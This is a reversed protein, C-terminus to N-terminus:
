THSQVVVYNQTFKAATEGEIIGVPSTDRVRISFSISARGVRKEESM